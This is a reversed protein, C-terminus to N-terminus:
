LVRYLLTNTGSLLGWLPLIDEFTSLMSGTDDGRGLLCISSFLQDDPSECDLQPFTVTELEGGTQILFPEM